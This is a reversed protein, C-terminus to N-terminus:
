LTHRAQRNAGRHMRGHGDGTGNADAASSAFGLKGRAGSSEYDALLAARAHTQEVALEETAFRYVFEFLRELAIAHTQRTTAFLWDAFRMFRAFPAEGLLLPLTRGFRGSNAVLEWYRAFRAVRQMDGFDIRDTALVNYPPDPNYRM